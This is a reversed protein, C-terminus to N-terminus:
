ELGTQGSHVIKQLEKRDLITVSRNQISLIVEKRLESVVRSLAPRSVGFYAALETLNKDLRFTEQDTSSNVLCYQAIKERITKFSLFFIRQSLFFIYNSITDLFNALFRENNKFHEIISPRPIFLIQADKIVQITVPFMPNKGFIFGQAIARPAAIDEVKLTKGSYDLMHGSVTGSILIMLQNCPDGQCAVIEDKWFRKITYNERNLLGPIEDTTFGKFLPTKSLIEYM